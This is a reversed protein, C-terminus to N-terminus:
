YQAPLEEKLTTDHFQAVDNLEEIVYHPLLITITFEEPKISDGSKAMSGPNYWVTTNVAESSSRLTM